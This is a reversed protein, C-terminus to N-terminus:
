VSSKNVAVLLFRRGPLAALLTVALTPPQLFISVPSTAFSNQVINGHEHACSPELEVLYLGAMSLQIVIMVFYYDPTGTELRASNM